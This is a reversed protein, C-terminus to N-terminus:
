PDARALAFMMMEVPKPKKQIRKLVVKLGAKAFIMECRKLNRIHHQDGYWHSAVYSCPEKEIWAPAGFYGPLFDKVVVLGNERIGARARRLFRVMDPDSVYQFVGQCWVLDYRGKAPVFDQVGSCFFSSAQGNGKFTKKLTKKAKKLLPRSFDMLDVRETVRRSLVKKTVRGIGAGVDLASRFACKKGVASSKQLFSLFRNSFAVDAAAHKAYGIMDIENPQRKKWYSHMQGYWTEGKKRPLALYAKERPDNSDWDGRPRKSGVWPM